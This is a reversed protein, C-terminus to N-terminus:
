CFLVGVGYHKFDIAIDAVNGGTVYLGSKRLHEHGGRTGIQVSLQVGVDLAEAREAGVV